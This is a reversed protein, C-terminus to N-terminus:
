GLARAAAILPDEGAWSGDSIQDFDGHVAAKKTNLLVQTKRYAAVALAASGANKLDEHVDKMSPVMSVALAAVGIAGDIPVNLTTGASVKVSYDLSRQTALAGLLGGVVLSEGAQRGVNGAKVIHSKHSHFSSVGKSKMHEFWKTIPSAM